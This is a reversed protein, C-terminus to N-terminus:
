KKKGKKGKKGKGGGDRRFIKEFSPMALTLDVLFEKVKKNEPTLAEAMIDAGRDGIRNYMFDIHTLTSEPNQLCDRFAMVGELDEDSQDIMNDALILKELKINMSLGVCLDKLGVGTLKNGQLNLLTLGSKMNSLVSSLHPGADPSIDCYALHLQKLSINTRLGCCLYEVGDTGLTINYDLKLTLLSVNGGKQLASGLAMAGRLGINNDFLELYAIQVEAGGLRLVEAIAATGEDGVNTRWFRLSNLLKYPGGKMGPGAGLVSTMLARTGGPGLPGFEDNIVFQTVPYKEEDNCTNAVKQNPNLGIMKSFKQYNALLVKPDEGDVGEGGAGAAKADKKPGM